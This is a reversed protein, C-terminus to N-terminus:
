SRVGGHAEGVQRAMSRSIWRIDRAELKGPKMTSEIRRYSIVNDVRLYRNDASYRQHVFIVAHDDLDESFFWGKESSFTILAKRISTYNM